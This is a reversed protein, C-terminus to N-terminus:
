IEEDSLEWRLSPEASDPVTWQATKGAEYLKELSEQLIGEKQLKLYHYYLQLATCADEISDHVVSQIKIGLFHWALFRLSIMRQRPLRFLFVTDIVQEPPVLMNIVRFDNKLGHGVFKVGTDALFRLKLYTSKLTTLHKSSFNADLDGPQIGSFKTLYDYVQEQTSIYDDIFPTGELMGQGRICTVRAVSMHSPKVTSLKGDSRLEAEEQNLTVFEADMAVLEGKKPIEDVGLPMFTIRKRGRDRALCKDEGFVDVTIPNPIDVPCFHTPLDRNIWYLVCPVKWDLNFWTVEQEPVQAVSFNNFLYWQPDVYEGIREHYKKGVNLFVVLNKKEEGESIHCVVGMLDYRVSQKRESEEMPAKLDTDRLKKLEVNGNDTLDIQMHTPLWPNTYYLQSSHTTVPKEVEQGPHRFRCNARTCHEAYRCPKLSQNAVMPKVVDATAATKSGESQKVVSDVLADMQTQWFQKDATDDMGCNLALIHPLAQIRKQQLTPRFKNCSDCWAPTTQELCMSKSLVDCFSQETVGGQNQYILNCLLLTSEKKIETGCKLCRNVHLQKMGFLRSVDTEDSNETSDESVGETSSTTTSSGKGQSCKDSEEPKPDGVSKTHGRPSESANRRKEMEAIRKKRAELTEAHLQHLIFRNWSQILRILNVKKKAEANQDSLILGLASAEPVTRFARLFNSAQCPVRRSSDLM